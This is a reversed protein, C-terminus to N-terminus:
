NHNYYVMETFQMLFGMLIDMLLLCRTRNTYVNILNHYLLCDTIKASVHNIRVYTTATRNVYIYQVHIKDTETQDTPQVNM